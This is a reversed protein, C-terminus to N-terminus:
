RNKIANDLRGLSPSTKEITNQPANDTTVYYFSKTHGTIANNDTYATDTVSNFLVYGSQWNTTSKYIHYQVAGAVPSWQLIIHHLGAGSLSVVLDDIAPPPAPAFEDAGIDPTVLDRVDGDFDTTVRAIPTGVGIVSSPENIHLDGPIAISVFNPDHSISHIDLGSAAQWNALTQQSLNYLGVNVNPAFLDNFDSIIPYTVLDPPTLIVAYKATTPGGTAGQYFINNKVVTNVSYGLYIAARTGTGIPSTTYVSNYYYSNDTGYFERIGHYGTNSIMNNAFLIRVGYYDNIGYYNGDIRNGLVQCDTAKSLYIGHVGATTISNYIYNGIFRNFTSSDTGSYYNYIGYSAYNTIILGQITIYDAGTLYFGRGSTSTIVPAQGPANQFTIPNSAGMGVITGPLDVQGDYTGNYINFTVPGSVGNAVLATAAAVPTAYDNNGGGVDYNGSLPQALATLGWSFLTAVMLILVKSERM